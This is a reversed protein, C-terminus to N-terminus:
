SKGKQKKLLKKIAIRLAGSMTRGSAQCFRELEFKLKDDLRFNM